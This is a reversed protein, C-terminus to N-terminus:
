ASTADVERNRVARAIRDKPAANDPRERTSYSMDPM